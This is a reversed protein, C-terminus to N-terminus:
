GPFMEKIIM